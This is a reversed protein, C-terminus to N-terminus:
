KTPNETSGHLMRLSEEMQRIQSKLSRMRMYHSAHRPLEIVIIPVMGAAFFIIMLTWLQLPVMLRYGLFSLAFGQTNNVCFTIVVLLMAITFVIRLYQM